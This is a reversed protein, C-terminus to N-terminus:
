LAGHRPRDRPVNCKMDSRSIQNLAARDTFTARTRRFATHVILLPGSLVLRLLSATPKELLFHVVVALSIVCTLTM